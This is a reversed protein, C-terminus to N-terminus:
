IRLLAFLSYSCPGTCTLLLGQQWADVPSTARAAVSGTCTGQGADCERHSLQTLMSTWKVLAARRESGVQHLATRLRDRWEPIGPSTSAELALYTIALDEEDSSNWIEAINEKLAAHFFAMQRKRWCSAEIKAAAYAADLVVIGDTGCYRLGMLCAAVVGGADKALEELAHDLLHRRPSDHSHSLSM